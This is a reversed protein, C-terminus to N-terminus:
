SLQFNHSYASRLCQTALMSSFTMWRRTQAELGIRAYSQLYWCQLSSSERLAHMRSYSSVENDLTETVTQRRRLADRKVPNEVAKRNIALRVVATSADRQFLHIAASSSALLGAVLATYLSSRM